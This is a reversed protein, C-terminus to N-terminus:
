RMGLRCKMCETRIRSLHVFNPLALQKTGDASAEYERSNHRELALIVYYRTFGLGFGLVLFKLVFGIKM